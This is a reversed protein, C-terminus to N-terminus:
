KEVDDASNKIKEGKKNCRMNNEMSQEKVENSNDSVVAKSNAVKKWGMWKEKRVSVVSIKHCTLAQFNKCMKASFLFQNM